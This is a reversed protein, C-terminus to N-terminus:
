GALAVFHVLNKIVAGNFKIFSFNDLFKAMGVFLQRMNLMASIRRAVPPFSRYPSPATVMELTEVSERVIFCPAKNIAM